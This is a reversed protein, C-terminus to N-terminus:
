DEEDVEECFQDSTNYDNDDAVINHARRWLGELIGDKQFIKQHGWRRSFPVGHYKKTRKAAKGRCGTSHQGCSELIENRTQSNRPWKQDAKAWCMYSNIVENVEKFYVWFNPHHANFKRLLGWHFCEVESNTRRACSLVSLFVLPIKQIWFNKIYNYFWVVEDNKSKARIDVTPALAHFWLGTKNQPLFRFAMLKKLWKLLDEDKGIALRSWERWLVQRCHFVCGEMQSEFNFNNSLYPRNWFRCCMQNAQLEPLFKTHFPFLCRVTITVKIDHSCLVCSNFHWFFVFHLILLQYFKKPVIKFTGDAHLVSVHSIDTPM